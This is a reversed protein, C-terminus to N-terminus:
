NYISLLANTSGGVVAYCDNSILKARKDIHMLYGKLEYFRDSPIVCM